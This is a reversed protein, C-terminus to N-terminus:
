VITHVNPHEEKFLRTAAQRQQELSLLQSQLDREKQLHAQTEGTMDVSGISFRYDALVKEVSDLKSKVGPLQKELFELTKAAEASRMEVNQRLYTRAITNLISAARDPYRHNYSAEIIGTQKGKESVKLSRKLAAITQLESTQSLRFMQGPLALMKSVRIDLTDGGYGARALEGIKATLLVQEDPAIVEFSDLSIAKAKWKETRAIEPIYLSDLDMRGERHFFRDGAGMPIASFCLHEAGVVYNLVMRSKILEIEADAPSAVDLLAGMDGMAKGAKNGKVDIQLLVDSTFQPRLWNSIAYGVVAGFLLFMFLTFKKGWLIM